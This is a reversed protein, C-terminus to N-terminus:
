APLPNRVKFIEKRRPCQTEKVNLRRRNGRSFRSKVKLDESVILACKSIKEPVEKSRDFLSIDSTTLDKKAPEYHIKIM